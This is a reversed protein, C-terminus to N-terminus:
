AYRSAVSKVRRAYSGGFLNAHVLLPYLNYLDCRGSHGAERPWAADYASYFRSGFGGFLQTFALEVERDGYYVAPDFVVPSGNSAVGFNGSWLDGHLLSPSPSSPLWDVLRARVRDLLNHTESDLSGRRTAERQQAGIRQDGFFEPWNDTPTNPQELVGIFNDRVLGFHDGATRHLAALREGLEEDFRAAPSGAGFDNLLLFAPQSGKADSFALVRPVAIASAAELRRLGDAEAEFMGPPGDSNWKVFYRWGGCVFTAAENICGGPALRVSSPRSGLHEDLTRILSAPLMPRAPLSSDIKM